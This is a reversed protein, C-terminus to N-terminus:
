DQEEDDKLFPSPSGLGFDDDKIEAIENDIQTQTEDDIRVINSLVKTAAKLIIKRQTLTLGEVNQIIALAQSDSAVDTVDFSSPWIPEYEVWDNDMNKSFAIVKKEAEQLMEARAKLTSETDLHDFAKSEASQIQRTERNFLALGANDFLISRKRAIEAPIAQMDGMNPSLFRTVGRDESAEVFPNDMGRVVERVVEIVREGSAQGTREVLRTALNDVMSSSIVLQPFCSRTLIEMYLSDLNMTQAQILEVDDFWWTDDSPTGILVFPIENSSIRGEAVLTDGDGGQGGSTWRQWTAGGTDHRWLTRTYKMVGSKEPDENDWEAESTLLWILNGSKDFCWDIVSPASWLIWKIKDGDQEREALTRTIIDGTYPNLKPSSRDIQIWCWGATTIEESVLEWFKDIDCSEGTVDRSWEKDIGSRSTPSSFLYQNIKRVVRGADNVDCARDIRGVYGSGGYVANNSNGFWSLDSENSARWLRANIYPKGGKNALHNRIIQSKRALIIPHERHFLNSM